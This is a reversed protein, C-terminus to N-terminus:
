VHHIHALTRPEHARSTFFKGGFAVVPALRLLRPLGVGLFHQVARVVRDLRVALLGMGAQHGARALEAPFLDLHLLRVHQLSRLLEDVEGVLRRHYYGVRLLELACRVVRVVIDLLSRAGSEGGRLTM